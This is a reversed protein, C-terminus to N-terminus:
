IYSHVLSDDQVLLTLWWLQSPAISDLFPIGAVAM